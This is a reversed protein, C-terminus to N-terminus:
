RLEGLRPDMLSNDLIEKGEIVCEGAISISSASSIRKGPRGSSQSWTSPRIADIGGGCLTKQADLIARRLWKSLVSLSGPVLRPRLVEPVNDVIRWGPMNTLDLFVARLASSLKPLRDM